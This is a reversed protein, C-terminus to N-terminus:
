QFCMYLVYIENTSELESQKVMFSIEFNTFVANSMALFLSYSVLKNKFLM